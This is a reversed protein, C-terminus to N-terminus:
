SFNGVCISNGLLIKIRKWPGFYTASDSQWIFGTMRVWSVGTATGTSSVTWHWWLITKEEIDVIM